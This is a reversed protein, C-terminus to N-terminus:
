RTFAEASFGPLELTQDGSQIIHYPLWAVGFLDILVDKKYPTLTVETDELALRGWQENIEAMAQEWEEQLAQIQKELSAVEQRSEGVDQRAQETLRRRTLSTSIRRNRKSFLSLLNEAHTGMEEMRRQSLESEDSELERSERELRAQLSQLKKESAATLREIELDRQQRAAESCMRRFEAQSVEPGAYLQLVPHARVTIRSTRYAWDLFDKQLTSMLRTDSLPAELAAFRVQPLPQTDLAVLDLPASLHDEWRVVGRRDPRSIIATKLM